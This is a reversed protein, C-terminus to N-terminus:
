QLFHCIPEHGIEQLMAALEADTEGGETVASADDIGGGPFFGVAIHHIPKPLPSPPHFTVDLRVEHVHSARMM